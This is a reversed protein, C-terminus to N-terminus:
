SRRTAWVIVSPRYRDRIVMDNVNQIVLDQRAADGVYGWGPPEEGVM